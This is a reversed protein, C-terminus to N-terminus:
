AISESTRYDTNVDYETKNLDYKRYKRFFDTHDSLYNRKIMRIIYNRTQTLNMAIIKSQDRNMLEFYIEQAMDDLDAQSCTISLAILKEAIRNTALWVLRDKKTTLEDYHM